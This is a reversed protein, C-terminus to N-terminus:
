DYEFKIPIRLDMEVTEGTLTKAAIWNPMKKVIRLAEEDCGYGIKRSVKINSLGGVKDVHFSVVVVGKIGKEKAATPYELNDYIFALMKKDACIKRDQKTMSVEAECGPFMPMNEMEVEELTKGVPQAKCSVFVTIVIFIISFVVLRKM